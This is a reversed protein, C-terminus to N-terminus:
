GCPSPVVLKPVDKVLEGALFALVQASSTKAELSLSGGVRFSRPDAGAPRLVYLVPYARSPAGPLLPKANPPPPCSFACSAASCPGSRRTGTGPGAARRSADAAACVPITKLWAPYTRPKRLKAFGRAARAIAAQAAGEALLTDGLRARALAHVIGVSAEPLEGLAHPRGAKAESALRLLNEIRDPKEEV